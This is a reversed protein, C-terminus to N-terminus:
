GPDNITGSTESLDDCTPFIMDLLGVSEVRVNYGIQENKKQIKVAFLGLNTTAKYVNNTCM